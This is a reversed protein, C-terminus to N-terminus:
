IAVTGLGPETGRIRDDTELGECCVLVLSFHPMNFMTMPATITTPPSLPDNANFPVFLEPPSAANPAPNTTQPITCTALALCPYGAPTKLDTVGALRQNPGGPDGRVRFVL